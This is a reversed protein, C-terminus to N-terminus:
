YLQRATEPAHLVFVEDAMPGDLILDTVAAHRTVTEGFREILLVILGSLRDVGVELVHDPRDNLVEARRPQSCRVLWSERGNRENTGLLELVGTALVNRCFGRPHVFTEALTEMPLMTRPAYVRAFGPLDDRTLGEPRDRVPRATILDRDTEYTRITEGDSLWIHGPVRPSDGGTRSLVKARSPHRLWIESVETEEGRATWTRDVIRMRLTEFRLEAEAMFAFLETMSPADVPPAVVNPLRIDATVVTTLATEAM